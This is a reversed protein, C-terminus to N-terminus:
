PAAVRSSSATPSTPSSRSSVAAFTPDELSRTMGRRAPGQVDGDIVLSADAPTARNFRAVVLLPSGRELEIDGPDVQVESADARWSARARRVASSRSQFALTGIM